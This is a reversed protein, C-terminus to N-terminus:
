AEVSYKQTAEDYSVSLVTLYKSGIRTLDECRDSPSQSLTWILTNRGFTPDPIWTGQVCRTEAKFNQAAPYTSAKLHNSADVEFNGNDDIAIM